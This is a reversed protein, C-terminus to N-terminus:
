PIFQYRTVDTHYTVILFALLEELEIVERSPPPGYGYGYGYGDTPNAIKDTVVLAAIAAELEALVTAYNAKIPSALLGGVIGEIQTLLTAYPIKDAAALLTAIEAELNAFLTPFGMRAPSSFQAMMIFWDQVTLDSLKTIHFIHALQTENFWQAIFLMWDPTIEYQNTTTNFEITDISTVPRLDLYFDIDTMQGITSPRDVMQGAYNEGYGDKIVGVPVLASLTIPSGIKIGLQSVTPGVIPIRNSWETYLECAVNVKYIKENNWDTVEEGGTGLTKLHIGRTYLWDRYLHMLNITVYDALKDRDWPSEANIVVNFVIDWASTYQYFAPVPKGFQDFVQKGADDFLWCIHLLDQNFSMPHDRQSSINLTISPLFLTDLPYDEWITIKTQELDPHGWGKNPDPVYTYEPNSAFMERLCLLMTDKTADWGNTVLIPARPIYDQNIERILQKERAM